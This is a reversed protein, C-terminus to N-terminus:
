KKQEADYAKWFEAAPLFGKTASGVYGISRLKPLHRVTEMGACGRPLGLEELERCTALPSLDPKDTDVLYLNRLPMSALTSIDRLGPLGGANLYELPMGALPSLNTVSSRAIFLRRLKMGRLPELSRVNSPWIHLEVLPLGNLPTLDQVATGGVNLRQLPMGALPSLDQVQKCGFLVLNTLPLGALPSLDKVNQCDTLNLHALPLGALPRLDDGRWSSLDLSVLPMGALPRLDGALRSQSLDLEVLRMGKLPDLSDLNASTIRLQELPMGALPALSRIAQAGGISLTRLPMGKLADLQAQTPRSHTLGFTLGQYVKLTSAIKAAEFRAKWTEVLKRQETGLYSDLYQAEDLREQQRLTALLNTLTNGHWEGRRVQAALHDCFALNTQAAANTPSVRLAAAYAAKAEDLRMLTQLVNAQLLRFEVAQPMLDLAFGVKELAPELQQDKLLALAQEHFTPATDRLRALAAEDKARDANAAAEKALAEQEAARAHRESAMVRAMFGVTLLVILVAASALLKHRLILLQLQKLVGAEEASTAFGNQYATLDAQLYAVSQYRRAPDVQLAKMAVASLAEPVRGGPCHPLPASQQRVPPTIRGALVNSLVESVDKGAVPKELTLIMYLVGGLAFVDSRADIENVAGRAQEPAMFHPTGMVSGEMTVSSTNTASLPTPTATPPLAGPGPANAGPARADGGAAAGVERPQRSSGFAGATENGSRGLPGREPARADPPVWAVTEALSEQPMNAGPARADGDAAAGAARPHKSSDLAGAGEDGSRGLPGREPAPSDAEDGRRSSPPVWAVTEASPDLAPTAPAVAETLVLASSAQSDPLIKALGWDMVLVEGFEGVMINDPKLDRHIVGRAHAFAMADCIKQFVTLLQALPYKAGTERDGAKLADLVARLTVGKVLKMTYFLRGQADVGLDHVPVINPHALQGLVRAEQLFRRRGEENTGRLMVKMAVARQFKEDQTDLVAGMGGRAIERGPRYSTPTTM